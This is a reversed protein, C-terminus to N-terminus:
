IRTLALIVIINIIWLTISIDKAKGTLLKIASYSLIGWSIGVSLNYTLPMLVLALFAPLAVELSTWNIKILPAMMYTGVIVLVPAIAVPPIAAILPSLFMFPIFLLGTTIATVGTRGGEKIGTASEIYATGPSTGAFGSFITTVSDAIFARKLKKPAEEKTGMFDGLEGLGFFTSLSDFFDVFLFSFIPIVAGWTFVTDFRMAGFLSFDPLAFVAEPTSILPNEKLAPIAISLIAALISTVVIGFITAGKVKKTILFVTFLLGIIFTITKPTIGGFQVLTAPNATIFGAWQLGIFTIFFGIGGSIGYRLEKPIAKAVLQRIQLISILFFIIGSIFVIGLANQWDVVGSIVLSFAFFANLGMGPAIAIPLNALVGMLICGVASVIVTTTVLAPFSMGTNSLIAPNTLIIYSMTLFTTLGAYIEKKYNISQSTNM